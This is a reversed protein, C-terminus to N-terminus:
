TQSHAPCAFVQSRYMGPTPQCIVAEPPSTRVFSTSGSSGVSKLGSEIAGTLVNPASTTRMAATRNTNRQLLAILCM